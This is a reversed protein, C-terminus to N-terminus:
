EQYITCQLGYILPQAFPHLKPIPLNRQEAITCSAIHLLWFNIGTIQDIDSTNLCPEISRHVTLLLKMHAATYGLHEPFATHTLLYKQINTSDM